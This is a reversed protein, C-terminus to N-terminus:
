IVLLIKRNGKGKRYERGWYSWCLMTANRVPDLFHWLCLILWINYPKSRNLGSSNVVCSCVFNPCCVMSCYGFLAAIERVRTVVSSKQIMLGCDSLGLQLIYTQSLLLSWKLHANIKEKLNILSFYGVGLIGKTCVTSKM